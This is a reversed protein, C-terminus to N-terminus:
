PVPPPNGGEIWVHIDTIYEARVPNNFTVRGDWAADIHASGSRIPRDDQTIVVFIDNSYCREPLPEFRVNYVKGDDTELGWGAVDVRRTCTLDLDEGYQIAGGGVDLAAASGWAIAALAAAIVGVVLLKRM